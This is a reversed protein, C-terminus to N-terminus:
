GNNIVNRNRNFTNLKETVNRYITGNLNLSFPIPYGNRNNMPTLDLNPINTKGKKNVRYDPLYKDLSDIIDDKLEERNTKYNLFAHVHYSNASSFIKISEIENNKYKNALFISVENAFSKKTRENVNKDVDIDIIIHNTDDESEISASVVRGNFISNYNDTNLRIYQDKLKRIVIYENLKTFLFLFLRKQFAGRLILEKNHQYYNYIDLENLGNPYYENKLILENKM